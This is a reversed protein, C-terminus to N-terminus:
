PFAKGAPVDKAYKSQSNFKLITEGSDVKVMEVNSIDDINM